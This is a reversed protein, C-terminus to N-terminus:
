ICCSSNPKKNLDLSFSLLSLIFLWWCILNGQQVIFRDLSTSLSMVRLFCLHGCLSEFRLASPASVITYSVHCPVQSDLDKLNILVLAYGPSPSDSSEVCGALHGGVPPLACSTQPSLPILWPDRISNSERIDSATCNGFQWFPSYPFYASIEGSLHGKWVYSAGTRKLCFERIQPKKGGTIGIIVAPTWCGNVQPSFWGGEGM